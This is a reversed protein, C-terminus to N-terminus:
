AAGVKVLRMGYNNVGDPIVIGPKRILQNGKFPRYDVVHQWRGWRRGVKVVDPHQQQLDAEGFGVGDLGAPAAALDRLVEALAADDWLGQGIANDAVAYAAAEETPLSVGRVVPALWEGDLVRVGDPPPEGRAKREALADARGHGALLFGSAENVIIPNVFGFRALSRHLTPLDHRKPNAPWRRLESLPVYDIRIDRQM